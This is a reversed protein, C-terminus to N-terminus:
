WIYCNDDLVSSPYFISVRVGSRGSPKRESNNDQSVFLLWSPNRSIFLIEMNMEWRIEHQITSDVRSKTALRRCVSWVSLIFLIPVYHYSWFCYILDECFTMGKGVSMVSDCLLQWFRLMNWLGEDVLSDSDLYEGKEVNEKIETM